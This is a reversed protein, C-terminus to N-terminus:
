FLGGSLKMSEGRFGSCILVLTVYAAAIQIVLAQITHNLDLRLRLTLGLICAPIGAVPILAALLTGSSGPSYENVLVMAATALIGFGLSIWASTRGPKSIFWRTPLTEPYRIYPIACFFVLLCLPIFFGGVTPPFHLLMEQFGSFYWPAKAPNPSLGPNAVGGLPAQFLAALTMVLAVLIMGVTLERPLLNAITPVTKKGDSSSKPLGIGRAKRIKWFHLPLLILFCIPILTTHLTFFVKLTHGTIAMEKLAFESPLPIYEVLALCITIAWYATQDWPLLYGTLCATLILAFLGLGIIWNFQRPRHFCQTLFVRFLHAAALIVLLNASYYHLSRIFAGFIFESQLRRVSDYADAPVPSYVFLMLTGSFTLVLILLLCMGGLGWTRNLALAAHPIRPPHLHYLLHVFKM